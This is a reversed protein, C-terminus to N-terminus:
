KFSLFQITLLGSGKKLKNFHQFSCFLASHDTSVTCLIESDIVTEQFNFSTFICDLRCQILGSFHQQSFTYKIKKSKKGAM